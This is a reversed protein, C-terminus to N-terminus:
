RRVQKELQEIRNLLAKINDQMKSIVTTLRIVNDYLDKIAEEKTMESM